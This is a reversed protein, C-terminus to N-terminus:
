YKIVKKFKENICDELSIEEPYEEKDNGPKAFYRNYYIVIQEMPM